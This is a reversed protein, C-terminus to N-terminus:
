KAQGKWTELQAPVYRKVPGPKSGKSQDLGWNSGPGPKVPTLLARKEQTFGPGTLLHKM